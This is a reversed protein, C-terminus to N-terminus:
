KTEEMEPPTIEAWHTPPIQMKYDVYGFGTENVVYEWSGAPGVSATMCFDTPFPWVLVEQYFLPLQDKIAIWKM